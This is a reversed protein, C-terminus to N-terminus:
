RGRRRRRRSLSWGRVGATRRRGPFDSRLRPFDEEEKRKLSSRISRWEMRENCQSSFEGNRQHLNEAVPHPIARRASRRLGEKSGAPNIANAKVRAPERECECLICGKQRTSSPRFAQGASQVSPRKACLAARKAGIRSYASFVTGNWVDHREWAIGTRGGPLLRAEASGGPESQARGM